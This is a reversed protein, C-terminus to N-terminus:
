RMQRKPTSLPCIRHVKNQPLAMGASTKSATNTEDIHHACQLTMPLLWHTSPVGYRGPKPLTPIKRASFLGVDRLPPSVHPVQPM